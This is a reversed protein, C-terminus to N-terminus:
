LGLLKILFEIIKNSKKNAEAMKKLKIFASASTPFDDQKLPTPQAGYYEEYSPLTRPTKGQQISNYTKPLPRPRKHLSPIGGFQDRQRSMRRVALDLARDNVDNSEMYKQIEPSSLALGRIKSEWQQAFSEDSIAKHFRTRIMDKIAEIVKQVNSRLEKKPLPVTSENFHGKLYEVSDLFHSFKSSREVTKNFGKEDPEKDTQVFGNSALIEHINALSDLFKDNWFKLVIKAAQYKDNVGSLATRAERLARPVRTIDDKINWEQIETAIEGLARMARHEDKTKEQHKKIPMVRTLQELSSLVEQKFEQMGSESNPDHHMERAVQKLGEITGLKDILMKMRHHITQRPIGTLSELYEESQDMLETRQFTELATLGSLAQQAKQVEGKLALDIATYIKKLFPAFQEAMIVDVTKSKLLNPDPIDFPSQGQPDRVEFKSKKGKDTFRRQTETDEFEELSIAKDKTKKIDTLISKYASGLAATINWKEDGMKKGINFYRERTSIDRKDNDRTKRMEMYQSETYMLSKAFSSLTLSIAEESDEDGPMAMSSFRQATSDLIKKALETMREVMQKKEQPAINNNSYYAGLLEDLETSEPSLQKKDVIAPKDEQAEEGITEDPIIEDENQTANEAMENAQQEESLDNAPMPKFIKKKPRKTVKPPEINPVQEENGQEVPVDMPEDAAYSKLQQGISEWEKKSMIFRVTNNQRNISIVKM